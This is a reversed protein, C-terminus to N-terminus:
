DFTIVSFIGYHDSIYGDGTYDLLRSSAKKGNTFIFDIPKEIGKSYGWQQYTPTTIDDTALTLKSKIGDLCPSDIDTNFDGTLVVNLSYGGYSDIVEQMKECIVQVGKARAEERSNDLHTNFVAVMREYKGYDNDQLVVYSCVRNCGAEQVEGNQDTYTFKSEEDPTDSLWFTGTSICTYKDRLWYITNFESHQVDADGGRKQGYCDYDSLTTKLEDMWISNMEQTAIIHPCVTNMYDAFRVCRDASDTGDAWSGWPSAVNFSVVSVDKEGVVDAPCEIYSTSKPSVFLSTVGLVVCMGVSVCTIIKKKLTKPKAVVFHLLFELAYIALTVYYGVKILGGTAVVGVGCGIFAVTNIVSFIINRRYGCKTASFLSSIIVALSLVIVLVISVLALLYSLNGVLADPHLGYNVIGVIVSILSVSKSGAWYMPLCMSLLPTFFLVFRVIHWPTSIVSKRLIDVFRNVADVERQATKADADLRADMQYYLLDIGCHPCNQKMYFPSLKGGCKPCKASFSKSM